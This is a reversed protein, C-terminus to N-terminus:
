EWTKASLSPVWRSRAFPVIWADVHSSSIPTVLMQSQSMIDLLLVVILLLLYNALDIPQHTNTRAGPTIHVHIGSCVVAIESIRHCIYSSLHEYASRGQFRQVPACLRTYGPMCLEPATYKLQKTTGADNHRKWWHIIIYVALWVQAVSFFLM